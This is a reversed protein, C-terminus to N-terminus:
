PEIEKVTSIVSRRRGELLAAVLSAVQEVPATIPRDYAGEGLVVWFPLGLRQAMTHYYSPYAMPQRAKYGIEVVPTSPACYIMNLFAGGHPGTLLAARSHLEATEALSLKPAGGSFRRLTWESSAAAADHGGRVVPLAAALARMLAPENRLSRRSGMNARSLLVVYRRESRPPPRPVLRSRVRRLAAAGLPELAGFPTTVLSLLRDAYAAGGPPLTHLRWEPVGANRTALSRAPLTSRTLSM